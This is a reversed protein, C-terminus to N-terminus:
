LPSTVGLAERLRARARALRSMVTGLPIDLEAALDTPTLGEFAVRRLLARDPKPLEEIARLVEACFCPLTADEVLPAEDEELPVLVRKPAAYVAHRLATMMYPLPRDIQAGNAQRELLALCADQCLDEADQPHGSLRRARNRLRTLTIDDMTCTHCRGSIGGSRPIRGVAFGREKEALGQADHTGIQAGRQWAVFRRSTLGTEDRM